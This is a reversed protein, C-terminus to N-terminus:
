GLIFSKSFCLSVMLSYKQRKEQDEPSFEMLEDDPVEEAQYEALEPSKHLKSVTTIPSGRINENWKGGTEM